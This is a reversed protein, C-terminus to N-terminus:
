EPLGPVAPEGDAVDNRFWTAPGDWRLRVPGVPGQRQKAIIIEARGEAAQLRQTWEALKDAHQEASQKGDRQPEAALLYYHERYLFLVTDAEQEIEGSDRLDSLVPRKDPRQEVGRSLQSLLVVPVELERALEKFARAMESVEQVRNKFGMARESPRIRGLYDVMVGDLGGARKMARAKARISAVTQMPSDDWEIPLQGLRRVAAAIRHAEPGGAHHSCWAGSEPDHYGGRLVATLPEGSVAAVARAMVQGAGMEASAYLWRHGAAASRTTIGLSAATKGMGPRGALLILQGPMFGGLMRDLGAYGSTIGALGGQREAAAVFGAMVEAAVTSSGRLEQGANGDRSLGALEGDLAALIDGGALEGGEVGRAREIALDCAEIVQRRLWCDRIVAAYEAVGVMSVFAGLLQALYADGGVEALAGSNAFEQRMTVADALRGSDIRRMMANFILGHIADAFHHPELFAIRDAVKNNRLLAGLVAQEAELNAPPM